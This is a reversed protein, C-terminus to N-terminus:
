AARFTQRTLGDFTTFTRNPIDINGGITDLFGRGVVIPADQDVPIELILFKASLTTFGVLQEYIKYPMTNTDSGTDALANEDIRGELRIPFLFARPDRKEKLMYGKVKAMVREEKPKVMGDLRVKDAWIEDLLKRYKDNYALTEIVPRVEELIEYRMSINHALARKEAEEQTLPIGVSTSPGTGNNFYIINEMVKKKNRSGKGMKCVLPSLDTETQPAEDFDFDLLTELDDLNPNKEEDSSLLFPDFDPQITITGEEFNVVANASRLFSRGFILGPEFEDEELNIIFAYDNSILNDNKELNIEGDSAYLGNVFCQAIYRDSDEETYMKHFILTEPEKKGGSGTTDKYEPLDWNRSNLVESARKGSFSSSSPKVKLDEKFVIRVRLSFYLTHQLCIIATTLSTKGGFGHRMNYCHNPLELTAGNIIEKYVKGESKLLGQELDKKQRINTTNLWIEQVNLGKRGSKTMPEDDMPNYNELIDLFHRFYNIDLIPLYIIRPQSPREDRREFPVRRNRRHLGRNLNREPESLPEVLELNSARTHM